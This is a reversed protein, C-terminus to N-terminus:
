DWQKMNPEKQSFHRDATILKQVRAEANKEDSAM